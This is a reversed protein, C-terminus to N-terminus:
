SNSSADDTSAVYEKDIRQFTLDERKLQSADLNFFDLEDLLGKVLNECYDAVRGANDAVDTAQQSSSSISQMNNSIETTANIQEEASAAIHIIQNNVANVANNINNLSNELASAEDAVDRMQEVSRTISQTADESDSQVGTVMASIEKTSQSTRMALARVEDAVVAFGRGANGARAAEIAANLALLNTQAAIDEITNVISSIKSAQEVLRLVKSADEKTSEAQEKIRNVTARVQEVGMSTEVRATESTEQAAHCNKAIDSTTAVMEDAAAAISIARQEIDKSGSVIAQSANNLSSSNKELENSIAITRAVTRNLTNAISKFSFCIRGIEDKHLKNEEIKIDFNGKQIEQALAMITLTSNVIYHHLATAVVLAFLVCSVTVIATIIISSTSDLNNSLTDVYDVYKYILDSLNVNSNTLPPLIQNNFIQMAEDEAHAQLLTLYNSNQIVNILDELSSKAARAQEQFQDMPLTSIISELNRTAELGQNIISADHNIGVNHLWSHVSNYSSHVKFLPRIEQSITTRIVTGTNLSDFMSIFATAAIAMSLIIVSGFGAIMKGKISLNKFMILVGFLAIAQKKFRKPM